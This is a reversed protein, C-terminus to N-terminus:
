RVFQFKASYTNGDSLTLLLYRCGWWARDTKWNYKYIMTAPDYTLTSAGTTSTEDITDIPATSDCTTPVSTSWSVVNLGRDGGLSFKVPVVAGPRVGNAAPLNDVPALFGDFDFFPGPKLLYIRHEFNPLRGTALIWGKDNIDSAEVLTVGSDGPILTNLDVMAGDRYIFAHSVGSATRSEGVITGQQNMARIHSSNGGLTGIDVAGSASGIRYVFGHYEYEWWNLGIAHIGAVLGDDTILFASSDAGAHIRTMGAGPVDYFAMRVSDNVYSNGVVVGSSNIASGRSEPGGLTGLDRMAGPAGDSGPEYRFAHFRSGATTAWGTAQGADNLDVCASVAGGLTGLDTMGEDAKWLFAHDTNVAVGAIGCVQGANNLRVPGVRLNPALSGIDVMGQAPTWLFGRRVGSIYESGGVVQGAANIGAAWSHIGGPLVGLDSLGLGPVYLTAHTPGYTSGVRSDGVVQGNNNLSRALPNAGLSGLDTLSYTPTSSQAAIPLQRGSSLAFGIVVLLSISAKKM